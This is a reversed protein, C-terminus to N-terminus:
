VVVGCMWCGMLLVTADMLVLVHLSDAWGIEKEVITWLTNMALIGMAHFLNQVM